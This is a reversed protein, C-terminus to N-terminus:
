RSLLGMFSLYQTFHDPKSTQQQIIQSFSKNIQLKYTELSDIYQKEIFQFDIDIGKKKNQGMM